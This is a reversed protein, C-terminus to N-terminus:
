GIAESEILHRDATPPLLRLCSAEDIRAQNGSVRRPVMPLSASPRRIAAACGKRSRTRVSELPCWTRSNQVQGERPSAMFRDFDQFLRVWRNVLESDIDQIGRSLLTQKVRKAVDVKWGQPLDIRERKAWAEVQPVVPRGEEVVEGFEQDSNRFLRDVADAFRQRPILDELESGPFGAYGDTSLLKEKETQYPSTSLEKAMRAGMEDGDLLVVPLRDDRGTLISAPMRLTKTGGDLPFM